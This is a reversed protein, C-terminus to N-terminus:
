QGQTTKSLDPEIAGRFCELESALPDCHVFSCTGNARLHAIDVRDGAQVGGLRALTEDDTVFSDDDDIDVGGRMVAYVRVRKGHLGPIENGVYTTTSGIIKM